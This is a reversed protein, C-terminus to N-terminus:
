AADIRAFVARLEPSLQEPTYLWPREARDELLSALHLPIAENMQQDVEERTKGTVLIVPLDPTYASWNSPLQEYLVRYGQIIGQESSIVCDTNQE